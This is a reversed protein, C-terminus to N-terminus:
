ELSGIPAKASSNWQSSSDASGDDLVLLSSSSPGAIAFSNQFPKSLTERDFESLAEVLRVESVHSCEEQAVRNTVCQTAFQGPGM